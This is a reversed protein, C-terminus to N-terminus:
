SDWRGDDQWGSDEWDSYSEDSPEYDDDDFGEAEYRYDDAERDNYDALDDDRECTDRYYEEASYGFGDQPEPRDM